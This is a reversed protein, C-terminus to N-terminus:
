YLAIINIILRKEKIIGLKIFHKYLLYLDIYYIILLLPINFRHTILQITSNITIAINVGLVINYIESALIVRIIRKSKISSFYAINGRLGFINLELGLFENVLLIIYGL